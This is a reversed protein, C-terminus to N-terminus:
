SLNAVQAYGSKKLIRFTSDSSNPNNAIATMYTTLKKYDFSKKGLGSIKKYELVCQEAIHDLNETTILSNSLLALIQDHSSYFLHHKIDKITKEALANIAETTANPNFIIRNEFFESDNSQTEYTVEFEYNENDYVSKVLFKVKQKIM